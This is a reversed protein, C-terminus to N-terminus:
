GLFALSALKAPALQTLLQETKKRTPDKRKKTTKVAM